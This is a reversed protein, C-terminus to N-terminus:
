HELGDVFDEIRKLTRTMAKMTEPVSGPVELALDADKVEHSQCRSPRDLAGDWQPDATGGVLLSPELIAGVADRIRQERLLPRLWIGPLNREIAAPLGRTGASFGVALHMQPTGARELAEEIFPLPLGDREDRPWLAVRVHWGKDTLLRRTFHLIPTVPSMELDPLITAVREPDGDYVLM